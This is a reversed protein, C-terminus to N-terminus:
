VASILSHSSRREFSVSTNPTWNVLASHTISFCTSWTFISRNSIRRRSIEGLEDLRLKIERLLKGLSGMINRDCYKIYKIKKSQIQTLTVKENQIERYICSKTTTTTQERNYILKQKCLAKHNAKKMASSVFLVDLDTKQWFCINLGESCMGNFTSIIVSNKGGANLEELNARKETEYSDTRDQVLENILPIFITIFVFLMSQKSVAVTFIWTQNGLFFLELVSYSNSKSLIWITHYLKQKKRFNDGCHCYSLKSEQCNYPQNRSVVM